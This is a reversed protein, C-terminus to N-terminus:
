AYQHRVSECCVRARIRAVGRLPFPAFRIHRSEIGGCFRRPRLLRFGALRDAAFLHHSDAIPHRRHPLHPSVLEHLADQEPISDRALLSEATQTISYQLLPTITQFSLYELASM